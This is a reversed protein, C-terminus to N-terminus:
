TKTFDTKSYPDSLYSSFPAPKSINELKAYNKPDPFTGIEFGINEEFKLVQDLPIPFNKNIKEFKETGPKIKNYDVIHSPRSAIERDESENEVCVGKNKDSNESNGSNNVIKKRKKKGSKKRPRSRKKSESDPSAILAEQSSNNKGSSRRSKAKSKSIKQKKGTNAPLDGIECIEDDKPAHQGFEAKVRKTDSINSLQGNKSINKSALTEQTDTKPVKKIQNDVSQINFDCKFSGRKGILESRKAKEEEAFKQNGPENISKVFVMKGPNGNLYREGPYQHAYNNNNNNNNVGTPGQYFGPTNIINKVNQQFLIPQLHYYKFSANSFANKLYGPYPRYYKAQM